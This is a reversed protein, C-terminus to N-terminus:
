IALMVLHYTIPELLPCHYALMLSALFISRQIKSNM